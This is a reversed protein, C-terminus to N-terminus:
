VESDPGGGGPPPSRPPIRGGRTLLPEATMRARWLDSCLIHVFGRGLREALRAAQAIGRDNLPTDPTQVVRAANGGTEGHRILLIAMRRQLLWAPASRIQQLSRLLQAYASPMPSMAM